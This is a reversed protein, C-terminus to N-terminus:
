RTPHFPACGIFKMSVAILQAQYTAIRSMASFASPSDPFLPRKEIRLKIEKSLFDRGSVYFFYRGKRCFIYSSFKSPFLAGKHHEKSPSKTNQPYSTNVM